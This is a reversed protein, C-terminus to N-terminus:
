ITVMINKSLGSLDYIDSKFSQVVHYQKFNLSTFLNIMSNTWKNVESPSSFLIVLYNDQFNLFHIKHYYINGLDKQHHLFNLLGGYLENFETKLFNILFLTFNYRTNIKVVHGNLQLDFVEKGVINEVPTKTFCSDLSSVYYIVISKVTEDLSMSKQGSTCNLTKDLHPAYCQVPLSNNWKQDQNQFMYSRYRYDYIYNDWNIVFSEIRYREGSLTPKVVSFEDYPSMVVFEGKAILDRMKDLTRNIMPSSKTFLESSDLHLHNVKGRKLFHIYTEQDIYPHTSVFEMYKKNELLYLFDLFHSSSFFVLQLYCGNISPHNTVYANYIFIPLHLLDSFSKEDFKFIIQYHSSNTEIKMGYYNEIPFSFTEYKPKIPKFGSFFNILKKLAEKNIHKEHLVVIESPSIYVPNILNTIIKKMDGFTRLNGCFNFAKEGMLMFYFISNMDFSVSRYEYENNIEMICRKLDVVSCDRTLVIGDKSKCFWMHLIKEMLDTDEINDIVFCMDHLSTFANIRADPNNFSFARHESLHQFGVVDVYRDMIAGHNSLLVSIGNTNFPSERFIVGNSLLRM